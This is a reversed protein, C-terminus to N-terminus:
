PRRSRRSVSAVLGLGTMITLVSSGGYSILPLPVGVVPAWGTVMLVNVVTHYFIMAAVGICLTQGFIGKVNLAVNVIWLILLVFLLLLGASGIFGWEEAWISFPFDTWHEPLFNFHNQTAEMFGKGTVQGSGIAKISQDTQWAAGTPDAGPDLFALVRDQQYEEMRDWLLPACFLGAVICLILPWVRRVLLLAISLMILGMLSASGLDPQWAILLVPFVLASFAPALDSLKLELEEMDHLLRAMSVIVVLKAIESPQARLPGIIIWRQSGKVPDFFLRVAIIAVIILAHMLWAWRHLNRYDMLACGMYCVLGLSMWMVQQNFKSSHATRFTASYLNALGIAAILLTLILLGWDFDRFWRDWRSQGVRPKGLAMGRSFVSM